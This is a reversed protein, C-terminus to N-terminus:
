GRARVNRPLPLPPSISIPSIWGHRQSGQDALDPPHLHPLHRPVQLRPQAPLVHLLAAVLGDVAVDVLVDLGARRLREEVDDVAEHGEGVEDVEGLLAAVEGVELLELPLAGGAGGM